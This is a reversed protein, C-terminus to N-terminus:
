TSRPPLALYGSKGSQIRYDFLSLLRYITVGVVVMFLGFGPLFHPHVTGILKGAAVAQFQSLAIGVTIFTLLIREAPWVANKWLWSVVPLMPLIVVLEYHYTLQPVAVMFPLYMSVSACVEKDNIIRM